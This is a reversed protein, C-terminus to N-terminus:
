YVLICIRSYIYVNSMSTSHIMIFINSYFHIKTIFFPFNFNTNERMQSYTGMRGEVVKYGGAGSEADARRQWWKCSSLLSILRFRIEPSPFRHQIKDNQGEELLTYPRLSRKKEARIRVNPIYPSYPLSLSLSIPIPHCLRRCTVLAANLENLLLSYIKTKRWMVFSHIQFQLIFFM